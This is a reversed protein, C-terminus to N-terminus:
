RCFDSINGGNQGVNNSIEIYPFYSMGRGGSLIAAMECVIIESANEHIFIYTNQNFNWQFNNRLTWNVIVWCQNLYHSPVSYAVHRLTLTLTSPPSTNIILLNCHADLKRLDCCLMKSLPCDSQLNAFWHSLIVISSCYRTNYFCDAALSPFLIYDYWLVGPKSLKMQFHVGM